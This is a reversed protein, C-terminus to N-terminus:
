ARESFLKEDLDFNGTGSFERESLTVPEEWLVISTSQESKKILKTMKMTSKATTKM